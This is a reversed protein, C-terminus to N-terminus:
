TIRICKTDCKCVLSDSTQLSITMQRLGNQVEANPQDYQVHDWNVPHTLKM